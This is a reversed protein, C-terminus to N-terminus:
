LGQTGNPSINEIDDEAMPWRLAEYAHVADALRTLEEAERSGEEANMLPGIREILIANLLDAAELLSANIIVRPGHTARLAEVVENCLVNDSDGSGDLIKGTALCTAVAANRIAGDPSPHVPILKWYLVDSQHM